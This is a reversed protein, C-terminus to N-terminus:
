LLQFQKVRSSLRADSEVDRGWVSWGPTKSRAFLEIRPVDGILQGLRARAQAPKESHRGLPADIFQRVGANVRRINGRVAFLCDETNARTWNGMGFHSLGNKTRKHWCFGKMTRLTIGWKRVVELAEAPMRPGRPVTEAARGARNEIERKEQVGDSLHNGCECLQKGHEPTPLSAPIEERTVFRRAFLDEILPSAILAVANAVEGHGM